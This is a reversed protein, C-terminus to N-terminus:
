HLRDWFFDVFLRQLQTLLGIPPDVCFLKHWLISAVLNNVILVRGRFSLQSHIWKWKALRGAMQEVIGDWNKQQFITDGLYVGLYKFGGKKWCIKDPLVPLGQEWKGLALADSKEWNVKASSIIGFDNIIGEMYNIDRQGNVMIIIDDAYASIQHHIEGQHLFFVKM